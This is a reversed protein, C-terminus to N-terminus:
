YGNLHLLKKATAQEHVQEMVYGAVKVVDDLHDFTALINTYQQLFLPNQWAVPLDPRCEVTETLLHLAYVMLIVAAYQMLTRNRAIRYVDYRQLFTAYLAELVHQDFQGRSAWIFVDRTIPHPVYREASNGRIPFLIHHIDGRGRPISVASFTGPARYVPDDFIAHLIRTRASTKSTSSEHADTTEARQSAQTLIDNVADSTTAYARYIALQHRTMETM